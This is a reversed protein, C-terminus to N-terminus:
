VWNMLSLRVLKKKLFSKKENLENKIKDKRFGEWYSGKQNLLNVPSFMLPLKEYDKLLDTKLLYKYNGNNNISYLTAEIGNLTILYKLADVKNFIHRNPNNLILVSENILRADIAVVSNGSDDKYVYNIASSNDVDYDYEFSNFIDRIAFGMIELISEILFRRTNALTPQNDKAIQINEILKNKTLVIM